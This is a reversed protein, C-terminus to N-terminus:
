GSLWGGGGIGLTGAALGKKWMREKARSSSFFLSPTNLGIHSVHPGSRVGCTPRPHCAGNSRARGQSPLQFRQWAM